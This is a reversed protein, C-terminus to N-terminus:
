ENCIECTLAGGEFEWEDSDKDFEFDVEKELPDSKNEKAKSKLKMAIKGFLGVKKPVEEEDELDGGDLFKQM